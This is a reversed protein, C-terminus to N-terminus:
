GRTHLAAKRQANLARRQATAEGRSMKKPPTQAESCVRLLTLLRNLHWKECEKPIGLQFMQCYLVEATTVTGNRQPRGKPRPVATHNKIENPKPEGHFWTATMPDDMYTNIANLQERTLFQYVNPDVGKDLTMCRLYDLQQERTMKQGTSFFPINWNSEWKALSLLSHELRLTCPKLYLFEENNPDWVQRGPIKLELM